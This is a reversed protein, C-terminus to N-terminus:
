PFPNWLCVVFECVVGAGTTQPGADLGLQVDKCMNPQGLDLRHKSKPQHNLTQSGGPTWTLQSQQDKQSAGTRKRGEIRGKIRGCSEIWGGVRGYSMWTGDLTQSYGEADRGM